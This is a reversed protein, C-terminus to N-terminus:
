GALLQGYTCAQFSEVFATSLDTSQNRISCSVILGWQTKKQQIFKACM